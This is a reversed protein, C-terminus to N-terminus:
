YTGLGWFPSQIQIEAGNRPAKRPAGANDASGEFGM